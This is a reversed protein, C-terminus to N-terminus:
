QKYWKKGLIHEICYWIKFQNYGNFKSDFKDPFIREEGDYTFQIDSNSQQYLDDYISEPKLQIRPKYNRYANPDIKLDSVPITICPLDDNTLLRLDLIGPRLMDTDPLYKSFVFIKPSSIHVTSKGILLGNKLNQLQAYFKTNERSEINTGYPINVIVIKQNWGNNIANSVVTILTDTTKFTELSNLVLFLERYQVIYSTLLDISDSQMLNNVWTIKDKNKNQATNLDNFEDMINIIWKGDPITTIPALIIDKSKVKLSKWIAIIGAADTPKKVYLELADKLSACSLLVKTLNNTIINQSEVLLHKNEPDEKALYELANKLHVDSKVIQIHPHYTKGFHEIDFIRADTTKISESCVILVHTHPYDGNSGHEHAIYIKIKIDKIRKKKGTLVEYLREALEKKPWLLPLTLILRKNDLRFPKGPTFYVPIGTDLYQVQYSCPQSIKSFDVHVHKEEQSRQSQEQQRQYEESEMYRQVERAYASQSLLDERENQLQTASVPESTTNTELQISTSSSNNTKWISYINYIFNYLLSSGFVHIYFESNPDTPKVSFLLDYYVFVDDSLFTLIRRLKSINSTLSYKTILDNNNDIDNIVTQCKLLIVDLIYPTLELNNPVLHSSIYNLTSLYENSLNSLQLLSLLRPIRNSEYLQYLIDPLYSNNSNLYLSFFRDQINSNQYTELIIASIEIFRNMPDENITLDDNLMTQEMESESIDDDVDELSVISSIADLPSIQSNPTPLPQYNVLVDNANRIQRTTDQLINFISMNPVSQSTRSVSQLITIGNNVSRNQPNQIFGKSAILENLITLGQEISLKSRTYMSITNEFSPKSLNADLKWKQFDNLFDKIVQHYHYKPDRSGKGLLTIYVEKAQKASLWDFDNM